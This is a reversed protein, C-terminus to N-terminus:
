CQLGRQTRSAERSFAGRTAWASSFVKTGTQDGVRLFTETENELKTETVRQFILPLTVQGFRSPSWATSWSVWTNSARGDPLFGWAPPLAKPSLFWPLFFFFESHSLFLSISVSFVNTTVWPSTPQPHYPTWFTSPHWNYPLPRYTSKPPSWKTAHTVSCRHVGSVYRCDALLWVMSEWTSLRGGRGDQKLIQDRLSPSLAQKFM